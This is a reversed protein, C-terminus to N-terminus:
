ADVEMIKQTCQYPKDWNGVNIDVYFSIDFYDTSYDSRNYWEKGKMASVLETFLNRMTENEYDSVHYTNVQFYNDRVLRPIDFPALRGEANKTREENEMGILDLEGSRINVTLTSHNRIGDTGKLGYKKLISKIAPLREKKQDQSIYAM